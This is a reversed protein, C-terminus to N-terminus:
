TRILSPPYTTERILGIDEFNLRKKSTKGEFSYLYSLTTYVLAFWMALESQPLYKGHSHSWTMRDTECGVLATQQISCFLVLGSTKIFASMVTTHIILSIKSFISYLKIRLPKFTKHNRNGNSTSM